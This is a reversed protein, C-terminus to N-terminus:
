PDNAKNTDWWESWAIDAITYAADAAAWDNGARQSHAEATKAKHYALNWSAQAKHYALTIAIKLTVQQM